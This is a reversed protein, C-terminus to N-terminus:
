WRQPLMITLQSCATVQEGSIPYPAPKTILHADTLILVNTMPRISAFLQM